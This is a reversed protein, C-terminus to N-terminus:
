MPSLETKRHLKVQKAVIVVSGDELEKPPLDAM